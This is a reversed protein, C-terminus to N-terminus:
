RRSRSLRQRVTYAAVGFVSITARVRRLDRSESSESSQYKGEVTLTTKNSSHDERRESRLDKSDYSEGM